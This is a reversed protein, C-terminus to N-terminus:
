QIRTPAAMHQRRHDELLRHVSTHARTAKEPPRHPRPKENVTKLWRDEWVSGLLRALRKKVKAPSPPTAFYAATDAPRILVTWAILEREVDEFLKELSVDDPDWDEAM